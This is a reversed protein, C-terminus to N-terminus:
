SFLISSLQRRGSLTVPDSPGYAEFLTLLQKRAAEENWARDRRIIDLLATVAGERDGAGNLAMALDFRAQHDGPDAEVKARLADMEGADVQTGALDLKAQASLIAPDTAAEPPTLALTTRAQEVEGSALYCEALGAIAKANGSEHRLIEAFIQAATQLDGAEFAAQAQELAADLPSPGVGGVLREVFARVQSESQAGMFADVPRGQSFAYVAPISQVRLQAALQQNEDINIKVLKVKGAAAKVVKELIPTLQKCPGCWPAWFDVIVPQELSAEMVDKPFGQTDTDKILDGGGGQGLLPEMGGLTTM